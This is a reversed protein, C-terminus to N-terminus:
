KLPYCPLMKRKLIAYETLAKSPSGEPYRKVFVDYLNKAITDYTYNVTKKHKQQIKEQRLKLRLYNKNKM